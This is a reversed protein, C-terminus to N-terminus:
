GREGGQVRAAKGASSIVWSTFKVIRKIELSAKFHRVPRSEFERGRAHCALIRVLQVVLGSLVIKILQELRAIVFLNTPSSPISGGVDM